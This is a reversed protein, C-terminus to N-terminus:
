LQLTKDNNNNPLLCKRSKPLAAKGRGTLVISVYHGYYGTFLQECTNATVLVNTNPRLKFCLVGVAVLMVRYIATLTLVSRGFNCASSLYNVSWVCTPGGSPGVICSTGSFVKKKESERFGFLAVYQLRQALVAHPSNCVPSKHTNKVKVTYVGSHSKNARFLETTGLFRRPIIFITPLLM